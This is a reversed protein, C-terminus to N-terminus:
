IAELRYRPLTEGVVTLLMTGRGLLGMPLVANGNTWRWIRHGDREVPHLGVVFAPHDLALRQKGEVGDIEIARVCMGLMRRDSSGDIMSLRTARSCLRLSITDAPVVFQWRNTGARLAPLRRGDAMVHVDADTSVADSTQMPAVPVQPAPLPRDPFHEGHNAADHRHAGVGAERHSERKTLETRLDDLLRMAEICNPDKSLSVLSAFAVGLEADVGHGPRLHQPPEKFRRLDSDIFAEIQQHKL